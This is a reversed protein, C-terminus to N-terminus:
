HNGIGMEHRWQDLPTYEGRGYERRGEIIANHEDADTMEEVYQILQRAARDQMDDPLERLGDIAQELLKTMREAYWM